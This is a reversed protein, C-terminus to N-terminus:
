NYRVKPDLWTVFIHFVRHVITFLCYVNAYKQILRMQSILEFKDKLGYAQMRSWARIRDSCLPHTDIFVTTSRRHSLM